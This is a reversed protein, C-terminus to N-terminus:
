GPPAAHEGPAFLALEDVPEFGLKRALRWSAPNEEVAGWVPRRGRAEMHRIMYAACLGAYGRRRHEALTDISVDWLSETVAGAYCFSVPQRDVFTAAIPSDEAGIELERRLEEPLPLRDLTGPDLWGVQGASAVPLRAPDRLLHLIARTRTWGPLLGALWTAQEELAVLEGGRVNRGVAEQIAPAAPRGIVVILETTPDRVVLSLGPKEELGLVECPGHLLLDRAEVWRPLDPLRKAIAHNSSM